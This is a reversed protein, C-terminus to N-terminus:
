GLLASPERMVSGEGVRWVRAWRGADDELHLLGVTWRTVVGDEGRLRALAEVQRELLPLVTAPLDAGVFLCGLAGEAGRDLELEPLIWAAQLRRVEDPALSSAETAQDLCRRVGEAQGEPYELWGRVAVLGTDGPSPTPV